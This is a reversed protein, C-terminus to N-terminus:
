LYRIVLPKNKYTSPKFFICGFNQGIELEGRGEDSTGNLCDDPMDSDGNERLHPNSCSGFGRFEIEKTQAHQWHIENFYKCNKCKNEM